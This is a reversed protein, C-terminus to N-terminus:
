TKTKRIISAEAFWDLFSDWAEHDWKSLDYLPNKALAKLAATDNTDRFNKVMEATIRTALPTWGVASAHKPKTPSRTDWKANLMVLGNYMLAADLPKLDPGAGNRNLAKNGMHSEKFHASIKLNLSANENDKPKWHVHFFGKKEEKKPEMVRITWGIEHAAVKGGTKYSLTDYFRAVDVTITPDSSVRKFEEYDMKPM